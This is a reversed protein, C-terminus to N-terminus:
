HQHPSAMLTLLLTLLLFAGELLYKIKLRDHAAMHPLHIFDKFGFVTQLHVSGYIFQSQWCLWLVTKLPLQVVWDCYSRSIALPDRLSIYDIGVVIHSLSMGVCFMYEQWREEHMKSSEEWLVAEFISLLHEWSWWKFFRLTM